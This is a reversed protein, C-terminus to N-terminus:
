HIYGLSRLLEEDAGSMQVRKGAFKEALVQNARHRAWIWDVWPDVRAPSSSLVDSGDAPDGNVQRLATFHPGQPSWTYFIRWGDDTTVAYDLGSRSFAAVRPPSPPQRLDHGQCV